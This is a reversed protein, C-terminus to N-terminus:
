CKSDVNGHATNAYMFRMQVVENMSQGLRAAFGGGWGLGPPNPLMKDSVELVVRFKPFGDIPGFLISRGPCPKTRSFPTPPPHGLLLITASAWGRAVRASCVHTTLRQGDCTLERYSAMDRHYDQHRPPAPYSCLPMVTMAVVPSSGRLAREHSGRSSFRSEPNEQGQPIGLQPGALRLRPSAHSTDLLAEIPNPIVARLCGDETWYGSGPEENTTM